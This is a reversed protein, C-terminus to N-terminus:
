SFKPSKFGRVLLFAAAWPCLWRGLTEIPHIAQLVTARHIPPYFVAGQVVPQEFGAMKFLTQLDKPSYFHAESWIPDGLMGRIRRHFAWTSYRGLEGILLRGGPRLVRHAEDLLAQPNRLFCLVTVILVADFIANRFPLIEGTGQIYAIGGQRRRQAAHLMAESPDIGMALGTQQAAPIAYNGDGCGVDLVREGWKLDALKFFVTKEDADAMQGLPTKFWRQYRDPDWDTVSAGYIKWRCRFAETQGICLEWNEIRMRPSAAARTPATKDSSFQANPM